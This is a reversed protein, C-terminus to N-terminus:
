FPILGIKQALMMTVVFPTQSFDNLLNRNSGTKEKQRKKEENNKKNQKKYLVNKNFNKKM